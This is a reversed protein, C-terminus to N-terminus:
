PSLEVSPLRGLWCTTRSPRPLFIVSRKVDYGEDDDEHQACDTLVVDLRWGHSSIFM